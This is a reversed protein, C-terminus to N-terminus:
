CSFPHCVPRGLGPQKQPLPVTLFSGPFSEPPQAKLEQLFKAPFDVSQPPSEADGRRRCSSPIEWGAWTTALYHESSPTTKQTTRCHSTLTNPCPLQSRQASGSLPTALGSAPSARHLPTFFSFLLRTPPAARRTHTVWGRPQTRAAQGSCVRWALVVPARAAQGGAM